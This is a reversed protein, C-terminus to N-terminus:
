KNFPSYEAFGVNWGNETKFPNAKVIRGNVNMEISEIQTPDVGKDELSQLWMSLWGSQLEPIQQGNKDFVAVNGNNFILVSKPTEM